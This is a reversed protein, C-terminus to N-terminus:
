NCTAAGQQEWVRLVFAIQRALRRPLDPAAQDLWVSAPPAGELVARSFSGADHWAADAPSLGLMPIDSSALWERMREWPLAEALVETRELLAARVARADPRHDFRQRPLQDLVAPWVKFALHHSAACLFPADLHGEAWPHLGTADAAMTIEGATAFRSLLTQVWLVAFLSRVDAAPPHTPLGLVRRCFDSVRGEDGLGDHRRVERAGGDLHLTSASWGDRGVLFVVRIRARGHNREVAATFPNPTPASRGRPSGPRRPGLSGHGDITRAWGRIAVGFAVWSPPATFGILHDLPDVAPLPLISWSLGEDDLDHVGFAVAPADPDADLLLEARDAILELLEPSCPTPPAPAPM